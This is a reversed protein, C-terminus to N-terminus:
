STVTPCEGAKRAVVGDSRTYEFRVGWRHRRTAGCNRCRWHKKKTADWSHFRRLPVARPQPLYTKIFAVAADVCAKQDPYAVTEGGSRRAPIRFANQGYTLWFWGVPEPHFDVRGVFEEREGRRVFILSGMVHACPHVEVVPVSPKSM